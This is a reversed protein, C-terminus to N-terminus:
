FQPLLRDVDIVFPARAIATPGKLLSRVNGVGSKGGRRTWIGRATLEAAIARLSAHRSEPIDALVPALDAANGSVAGRLSSRHSRSRLMIRLHWIVGPNQGIEWNRQV